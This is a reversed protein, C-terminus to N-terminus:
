WMIKADPNNLTEMANLLLMVCSDDLNDVKAAVSIAKFKEVTDMESVSLSTEFHPNLLLM